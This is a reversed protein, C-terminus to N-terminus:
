VAAGLGHGTATQINCMMWCGEVGRGNSYTYQADYKLM